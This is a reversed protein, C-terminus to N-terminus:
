RLKSNIEKLTHLIEMLVIKDFFDYNMYEYLENYTLRKMPNQQVIDAIEKFKENVGDM